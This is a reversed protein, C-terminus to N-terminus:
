ANDEGGEFDFTLEGNLEPFNAKQVRHLTTLEQLPQASFVKIWQKMEAATNIWYYGSPFDRNAGIPLLWDKRAAEILSKVTRDSVALHQCLATLSIPKEPTARVLARVVQVININVFKGTDQRECTKLYLKTAAANPLAGCNCHAIKSREIRLSSDLCEECAYSLLMKLLNQAIQPIFNAQEM